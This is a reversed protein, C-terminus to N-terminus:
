FPDSQATNNEFTRLICVLFCIAYIDMRELPVPLTHETLKPLHFVGPAESHNFSLNMIAFSGANLNKPLLKSVLNNDYRPRM